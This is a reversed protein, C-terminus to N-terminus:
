HRACKGNSKMKVANSILIFPKYECQHTRIDMICQEKEATQTHGPGDQSAQKRGCRPCGVYVPSVDSSVYVDDTVRQPHTWLVVDEEILLVCVKHFNHIKWM